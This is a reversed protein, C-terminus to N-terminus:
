ISRYSSKAYCSRQLVNGGLFIFHTISKLLNSASYFYQFVKDLDVSTGLGQEYCLGLNYAGKASGLRMSEKFCLFAEKKYVSTRDSKPNTILHDYESMVNKKASCILEVGVSNQWDALGLLNSKELTELLGM